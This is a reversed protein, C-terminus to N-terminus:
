RKHAPVAPEGDDDELVFGILKCLEEAHGSVEPDEYGEEIAAYENFDYYLRMAAAVIVSPRQRHIKAILAIRKQDTPAIAILHAKGVVNAQEPEEALSRRGCPRSADAARTDGLARGRGPLAPLRGVKGVGAM